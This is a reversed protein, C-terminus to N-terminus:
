TNSREAIIEGDNMLEFDILKRHKQLHIAHECVESHCIECFIMKSIRRFALKKKFKKSDLYFLVERERELFQRVAAVVVQSKSTFGKEKAYKTTVYEEIKKAMEKPLKITDWETM